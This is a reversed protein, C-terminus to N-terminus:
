GLEKMRGGFVTEDVSTLLSTWGDASSAMVALMWNLGMGKRDPEPCTIQGEGGNSVSNLRRGRCGWMRQCLRGKNRKKKAKIEGEQKLHSIKWGLGDPMPLIESCKQLGLRAKTFDGGYEPYFTKHTHTTHTVPSQTADLSGSCCM